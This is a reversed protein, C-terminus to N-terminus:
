APALNRERAFAIAKEEEDASLNRLPATVRSSTLVGMGKLAAKMTAFNGATASGGKAISSIRTAAIIRDTAADATAFDSRRAAAYCEVCDRPAINAIGPIAGHAGALIGADILYRTGLFGRLSINRARAGSMVQRFWDLDNQSDKLGVIAGEQGLRLITDVSFKVKVNQPINYALLPLDVTSRMRRFHDLLEDQENLYYYPPLLAIADAGANKAERAHEIALRTAADSINVVVPVRGNVTEVAVRVAEARERRTFSAFEGTTGLVWIGHVGADIQFEILRRMSPLDITEDDTVPTLIPPVIGHLRNLDLM